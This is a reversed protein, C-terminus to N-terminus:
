RLANILEVALPVCAACALELVAGGPLHVRLPAEHTPATLSRDFVVEAFAPGDAAHGSQVRERRLRLWAIFTPYKVGHQAAFAMASMGSHAFADLLAERHEPAFRLRGDSGTRIVPAAPSDGGSSVSTVSLM